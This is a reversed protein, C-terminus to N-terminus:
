KFRSINVEEPLPEDKLTFRAMKNAFYPALMVGKTGLGNFVLLQDHEPHV